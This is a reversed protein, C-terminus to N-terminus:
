NSPQLRAPHPLGNRLAEKGGIRLRVARVLFVPNGLIYRRFLRRPEQALRFTWELGTRRLIAPARKRRGSYFDFLGGVAMQVPITLQPGCRTLWLEQAPVGMAVLVVRAGSANLDKILKPEEARTFFGHHRWAVNLGPCRAQMAAACRDVIGPEAGLLAIPLGRRAAQACLLPFMDTGNVNDILPSGALRSALALGSGDAYLPGAAQLARLYDGHKVAVNVCHTNLFFVRRQRGAEADDVVSRTAADLSVNQISLGFLSITPAIM